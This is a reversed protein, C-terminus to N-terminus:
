VSHVYINLDPNKSWNIVINCPWKSLTCNQIKNLCVYSNSIDNCHCKELDTGEPPKIQDTLFNSYIKKAVTSHTFHIGAFQNSLSNLECVFYFQVKLFSKEM